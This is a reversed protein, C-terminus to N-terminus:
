IEVGYKKMTEIGTKYTGFEIIDDMELSIDFEDELAAMLSMHGVSDWAPISQYELDDQLHENSIDFTEIFVNNYKEINTM